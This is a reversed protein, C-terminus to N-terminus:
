KMSHFATQPTVPGRRTAPGLGSVLAGGAENGKMRVQAWLRVQAKAELSLPGTTFGGARIFRRGGVVM